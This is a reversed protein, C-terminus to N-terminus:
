VPLHNIVGYVSQSLEGYQGLHLKEPHYLPTPEIHMSQITRHDLLNPSKPAGPHTRHSAQALPYLIPDM